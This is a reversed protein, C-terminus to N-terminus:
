AGPKGFTPPTMFNVDWPGDVTIFLLTGEDAKTWAQHVMRAPMYNFSGPGLEAKQGDCEMVFAGSLITHTENASHWHPPVHQGRPVRIMLQTAQTDPAVHLIAIEPSWEGADPAIPQWKIDRAPVYLPHDTAAPPKPPPAQRASPRVAIGAAGMGAWALFSRRDVSKNDIPM